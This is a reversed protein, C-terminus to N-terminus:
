YYLINHYKLLYKINKLDSNLIKEIACSYGVSPEELSRVKLSFEKKLLIELFSFDYTVEVRERDNPDGIEELLPSRRLSNYEELLYSLIKSDGKALKLEEVNIIAGQDLLKQIENKDKAAIAKRLSLKRPDEAGFSLLLEELNKLGYKRTADLAPRTTTGTIIPFTVM